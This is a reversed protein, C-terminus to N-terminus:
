CNLEKLQESLKKIAQHLIFGVNTVTLGMIDAIEKYSKGHELKLIVIEREREPLKNIKEKVIMMLEKQEIARDPSHQGNNKHDIDEPLHVEYKTQASKKIDLCQNRTVKYLWAQVNGIKKQEGKQSIRLYRIFTEQVIDRAGDIDNLFRAAYLILPAEFTKIIETIEIINENKEM